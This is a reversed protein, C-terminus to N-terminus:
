QTDLQRSPTKRPIPWPEPVIPAQDLTRGVTMPLRNRPRAWQYSVSLISLVQIQFSLHSSFVIIAKVTSAELFTQYQTAWCRSLTRM